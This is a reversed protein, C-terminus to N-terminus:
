LRDNKVGWEIVDKKNWISGVALKAVPEPFTQDRVTWNHVTQKVVGFIESMEAISVLEMNKKM